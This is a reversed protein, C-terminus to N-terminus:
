TKDTKLLYLLSGLHSGSYSKGFKECALLSLPPSSLSTPSAPFTPSTKEGEDGEVGRDGGDGEDEIATPSFDPSKDEM